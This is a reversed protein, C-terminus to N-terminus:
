VRTMPRISVNSVWVLGKIIPKKIGTKWDGYYLQSTWVKKKGQPSLTRTTTYAFANRPTWFDFSNANEFITRLKQGQTSAYLASTSGTTSDHAWTQLLFVNESKWARVVGNEKTQVAGNFSYSFSEFPNFSFKANPDVPSPITSPKEQNIKVAGDLTYKQAPVLTGDRGVQFKPTGEIQIVPQGPPSLREKSEVFGFNGKGTYIRKPEWPDMRSTWIGTKTTWVLRGRGTWVVQNPEEKTIFKRSSIGNIDCAYIEFRSAKDTYFRGVYAIQPESPVALLTALFTLM